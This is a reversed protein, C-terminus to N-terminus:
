STGALKTVPEACFSTRSPLRVGGAKLGTWGGRRHWAAAACVYTRVRSPNVSIAVAETGSQFARDAGTRRVRGGSTRARKRERLPPGPGAKAGSVAGSGAGAEEGRYRRDHARKKEPNARNWARHYAKLREANAERWEKECAKCQPYRGDKRSRDRRFARPPKEEWCKTCRKLDSSAAM